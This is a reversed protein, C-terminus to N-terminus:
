EVKKNSKIIKRIIIVNENKRIRESKTHTFFIM